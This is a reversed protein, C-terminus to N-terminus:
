FANFYGTLQRKLLVLIAKELRDRRELTSIAGEIDGEEFVLKLLKKKREVAALDVEAHQSLLM